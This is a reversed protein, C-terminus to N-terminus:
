RDAPDSEAHQHPPMDASIREPASLNTSPQYFTREGLLRDELRQAEDQFVTGALHLYRKTTAMNSHGARTMLAVPPECAAAGNTLSAHSLDHSPRLDADVGAASLAARLADRFTNARYVGGTQPHCFVRDDDGKYATLRYREALV